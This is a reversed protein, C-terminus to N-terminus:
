NSLDISRRDAYQQETGLYRKGGISTAVDAEFFVWLEHTFLTKRQFWFDGKIEGSTVSPTGALEYVQQRTMGVKIQNWNSPYTSQYNVFLLIAIVSALMGALIKYRM